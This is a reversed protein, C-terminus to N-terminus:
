KLGLGQSYLCALCLPIAWVREYWKSAKGFARMCIFVCPNPPKQCKMEAPVEPVETTEIWDKINQGPRSFFENLGQWQQPTLNVPQPFFIPFPGVGPVAAAAFGEPDIMNIPNNKVYAYINIGGEFGIPDKTIFRGARPDYYRARYYYLGTEYDM